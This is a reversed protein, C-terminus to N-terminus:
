DMGIVHTSKANQLQSLHMQEIPIMMGLLELISWVSRIWIIRFATCLLISCCFLDFYIM